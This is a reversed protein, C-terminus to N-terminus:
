PLLVIKGRVHGTQSQRQAEAADVLPYRHAIEIEFEGRAVLEAVLPVAEARLALEEPTLPIPSGGGWARIGFEQARPGAVVTGVRDGDAVLETSVHLAEETGAADLVVDIGQPAADRVRELLGPGYAVPVAGLERLREHNRESATAVVTAGLRRGFQIAAQGVSGSGGHVLLTMGEGVGLSTIAQYATGVPTPIAAAQEWTVGEPKRTLKSAAVAIETAYAGSAGAVIVEDGPSWGAVGAGVETIVGSADAGVRRPATIEGSARIRSRLKWDIPNVGAARVEVVVEGPGATAYPIERYELVEPGGFRDYEIAHPM